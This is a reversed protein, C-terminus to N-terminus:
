FLSDEKLEKLLKRAISSPFNEELEELKIFLSEKPFISFNETTQVIYSLTIDHNTISHKKKLYRPTSQISNLFNSRIENPEEYKASLNKGFILFPLSPITKFFRRHSDSYILLENNRNKLLYFRLEIPIRNEEKKM